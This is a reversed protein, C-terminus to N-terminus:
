LFTSLEFHRDLWSVILDHQVAFDDRATVRRLDPVRVPLVSLLAWLVLVPISAIERATHGIRGALRRIFDASM